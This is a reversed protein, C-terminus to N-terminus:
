DVLVFPELSFAVCKSLIIAVGEKEPMPVCAGKLSIELVLGYTEIETACLFIPKALLSINELKRFLLFFFVLLWVKISVLSTRQSSSAM